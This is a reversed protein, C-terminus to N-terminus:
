NHQQAYPFIAYMERLLDRDTLATGNVRAVTKDTVQMPSVMPATTTTASANALGTSAHSAVQALGASVTILVVAIITSLRKM